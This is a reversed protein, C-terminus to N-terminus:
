KVFVASSCIQLVWLPLSLSVALSPIPFYVLSCLFFLSQSLFLSTLLFKLSFLYFVSFPLFKLSFFFHLFFSPRPSPCLFITPTCYHWLSSPVSFLYLSLSLFIFATITIVHILSSHSFIFVDDNVYDHFSERVTQSGSAKIWSGHRTCLGLSFWNLLIIFNDAIMTWQNCWKSPSSKIMGTESM